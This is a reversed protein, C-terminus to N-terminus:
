LVWFLHGACLLYKMFTVERGRSEQEFRGSTGNPLALFETEEFRLPGKGM